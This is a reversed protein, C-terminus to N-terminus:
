GPLHGTGSQTGGLCVCGGDSDVFCLGGGSFCAHCISRCIGSVGGLGAGGPALMASVSGVSGSFGTAIMALGLTDGSRFTVGKKGAFLRAVGTQGPLYTITFNPVPVGNKVLQCVCSGGPPPTAGDLLNCTLLRAKFKEPLPYRPPTSSTATDPGGDTLFSTGNGSILGSFKLITSSDAGSKSRSRVGFPNIVVDAM